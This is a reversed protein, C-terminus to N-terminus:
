AVGLNRSAEWRAKAWRAEELQDLAMRLGGSAEAMRGYADDNDAVIQLLHAADRASTAAKQVPVKIADPYDQSM